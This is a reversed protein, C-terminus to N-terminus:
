DNQNKIWSLLAIGCAHELDSLLHAMPLGVVNTYSGQISEIMAMGIGQAAYAGAKDLPEGTAVYRLIASETMAKMTVRSKVIRSFIAEHQRGHSLIAEQRVPKRKLSSPKKGMKSRKVIGQVSVKGDAVSHTHIVTYGTFVSHTKGQLIRIMRRADRSGSPKGLITKGDPAVVITDAAILICSSHVMSVKPLISLAKELSLRKVLQDPKEGKKPKEEALPIEVIFPLKLDSLLAVRRPSSSALVITPINPTKVEKTDSL